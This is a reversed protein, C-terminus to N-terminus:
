TRMCLQQESLRIRDTCCTEAEGWWNHSLQDDATPRLPWSPSLLTNRSCSMNLHKPDSPCLCNIQNQNVRHAWTHHFRWRTWDLSLTAGVRESSESSSVYHLQLWVVGPCCVPRFSLFTTTYLRIRRLSRVPNYLTLLYIQSTSTISYIHSLM